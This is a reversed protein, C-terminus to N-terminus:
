LVAILLPASIRRIICPANPDLVVFATVFTVGTLGPINPVNIVPDTTSATNGLVGSFGVFYPNPGLSLQLVADAQLPVTGGCTAIGGQSPFMSAGMIFAHGADAPSSVLYLHRSTGTRTPGLQAAGAQTAADIVISTTSTGGPFNVDVFYTGPPVQQGGDDVQPWMATFVQGAPINVIIQICIPTFITTGVSNRVHYPCPSPLFIGANTDNAVTIAIPAGVPAPSPGVTVSVQGAALAVPVLLLGLTRLIPVM